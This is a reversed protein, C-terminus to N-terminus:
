KQLMLWGSIANGAVTSPPPFENLLLMRRLEIFPNGQWIELISQRPFVGMSDLQRYGRQGITECCYCCSGDPLIYIEQFPNLCTWRGHSHIKKTVFDHRQKFFFTGENTNESLEYFIIGDTIPLWKNIFAQEEDKTVGQNRVFSVMVSCPMARHQRLELFSLLNQEIKALETGRIRKYTHEFAADISVYLSTLGADLLKEGMQASLLTGNTTIHAGPSGLKRALDIFDVVRKHLLPEEINGLKVPLHHKGAQVAIKELMHWPMEIQRTFYDTAHQQRADKGHYPCMICQLNCRNSLVVSLQMPKPVIKTYNDAFYYVLEDRSVKTIQEVLSPKGLYVRIRNFFRQYLKAPRYSMLPPYSGMGFEHVLPIRPIFDHAYSKDEIASIFTRISDPHIDVGCEHVILRGSLKNFEEPIPSHLRNHPDVVKLM